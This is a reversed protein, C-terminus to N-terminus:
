YEPKLTKLTAEVSFTLLGFIGAWCAESFGEFGVGSYGPLTPMRARKYPTERVAGVTHRWGPNGREGTYEKTRLFELM